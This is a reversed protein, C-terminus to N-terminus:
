CLRLLQSDSDSVSVFVIKDAPPTRGREKDTVSIHNKDTLDTLKQKLGRPDTDIQTSGYQEM